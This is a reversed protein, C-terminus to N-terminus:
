TLKIHIHMSDVVIVPRIKRRKGKHEAILDIFGFRDLLKIDQSVSKFDRNLMKALSYISDPKKHKIFSLLRARENSFLKRLTAIGEFDYDKKEGKFKKFNVNFIGKSIGLDIDRIKTRPM